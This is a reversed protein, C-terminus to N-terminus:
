VFGAAIAGFGLVSQAFTPLYSIPGMMVIGMCIMAINSGALVRWRWLWGPMIPEAARREVWVAAATLGLTAGFTAISATSFWPWAQGGQLLGFILGGIALFMLGAGAFDIRHHRREVKERLY